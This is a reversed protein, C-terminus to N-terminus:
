TPKKNPQNNVDERKNVRKAVILITNINQNQTAAWGQITKEKEKQDAIAQPYKFKLKNYFM